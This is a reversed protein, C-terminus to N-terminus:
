RPSLYMRVFLLVRRMLDKIHKRETFYHGERPYTVFEFPLSAEDLARRFGWAQTIPMREDNEGHLILMLPIRGEKSSIQVGLARVRRMNQSGAEGYEVTLWRRDPNAHVWCRVYPGPSDWDTIGAGAIVSQIAM